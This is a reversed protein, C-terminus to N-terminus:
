SVQMAQRETVVGGCMATSWHRLMWTGCKKVATNRDMQPPLRMATTNKKQRLRAGDIKSAGFRMSARPCANEDTHNGGNTVGRRWSTTSVVKARSLKLRAHSQPRPATKKETARPFTSFFHVGSRETAVMQRVTRANTKSGYSLKIM